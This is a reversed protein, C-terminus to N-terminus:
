FDTMTKKDIIGIVVSDLSSIEFKVYNNEFIISNDTFSIMVVNGM